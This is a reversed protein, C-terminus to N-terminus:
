KFDEAKGREIEQVQLSRLEFFGGTEFILNMSFSQFLVFFTLPSM